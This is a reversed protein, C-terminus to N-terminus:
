ERQPPLEGKERLADKFGQAYERGLQRNLEYIQHQAEDLRKQLDDRHRQVEQGLTQLRTNDQVLSDVKAAKEEARHLQERLDIIARQLAQIELSARKEGQTASLAKLEQESIDPAEGRVGVKLAAHIDEYTAGNRKYEAIIAIVRLDEVTFTRQKGEGPNATPSLYQAFEIAWNRVTPM